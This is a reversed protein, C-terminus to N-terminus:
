AETTKGGPKEILSTRQANALPTGIKALYDTGVTGSDEDINNCIAYVAETLNYIAAALAQQNIGTQKLKERLYVLNAASSTLNIDAM